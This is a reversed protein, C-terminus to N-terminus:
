TQLGNLSSTELRSYSFMLVGCEFLRVYRMMQLFFCPDFHQELPIRVLSSRLYGVRSELSHEPHQVGM